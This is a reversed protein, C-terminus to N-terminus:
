FLDPLQTPYVESLRVAEGEVSLKLNALVPHSIKNYLGSAKVEIDEAPRVYTSVARTREALQDLMTANVDDRVGFTFIRTSATNKAQVNKLIKEPSTEGITPQGDTFFVVVFSRSDESSRLKLAATLADDIATGGTAELENVWKRANEIQESSAD